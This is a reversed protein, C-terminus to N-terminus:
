GGCCYCFTQVHVKLKVWRFHCFLTQLPQQQDKWPQKSAKGAIIERAHLYRFVCVCAHANIDRESNPLWSTGHSACHPMESYNGRQTCQICKTLHLRLCVHMWWAASSSEHRLANRTGRLFFFPVVFFFCSAWNERLAGEKDVGGLWRFALPVNRLQTGVSIYLHKHSWHKVPFRGWICKLVGVEESICYTPWWETPRYVQRM